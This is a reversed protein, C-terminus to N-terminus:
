GLSLEGILDRFRQKQSRKHDRDVYTKSRPVGQTVTTARTEKQCFLFRMCGLPSPIQTSRTQYRSRKSQAFAKFPLARFSKLSYALAWCVRSTQPAVSIEGPHKSDSILGMGVHGGIFVPWAWARIKPKISDNTARKGLSAPPAAQLANPPTDILVVVAAYRDALFQRGGLGGLNPCHVPFKEKV